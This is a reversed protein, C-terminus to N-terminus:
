SCELTRGMLPEPFSRNARGTCPSRATRCRSGAVIIATEAHGSGLTTGDPAAIKACADTGDTSTHFVSPAGGDLGGWHTRVDIV